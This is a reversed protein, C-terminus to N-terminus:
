EVPNVSQRPNVLTFTVGKCKYGKKIARSMVQRLVGTHIAAKTISPFINGFEDRVQLNKDYIFTNKYFSNMAQRCKEIAESSRKKGTQGVKMRERAIDSRKKGVHYIRSKEISEPSKKKNLNGGTEKNYGFKSDMTQFIEILQREIGDLHSNLVNDSILDFRFMSEGYKNWAKQLHENHHKNHRLVSLHKSKRKQWRGTTQGYYCKNNAINEIKYISGM